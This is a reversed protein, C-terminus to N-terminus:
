TRATDTSTALGYRGNDRQSITPLGYTFYLVYKSLHLYFVKIQQLEEETIDIWDTENDLKIIQQLKKTFHYLQSIFFYGSM